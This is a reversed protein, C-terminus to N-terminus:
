RPSDNSKSNDARIPTVVITRISKRNNMPITEAKYPFPGPGSEEHEHCDEAGKAGHESLEFQVPYKAELM